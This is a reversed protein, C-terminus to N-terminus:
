APREQSFVMAGVRDVLARLGEGTAASIGLLPVGRAAFAAELEPFLDRIHPLDIKNLAVIQPRQALAEDYLRLEENL